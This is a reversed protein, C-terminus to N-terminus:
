VTRLRLKRAKLNVTNGAADRVSTLLVANASRKGKLASRGAKTPKLVVKVVGAIPSSTRGTGLLVAKPKRKAKAAGAPLKAGNDLYLAQMVTGPEDIGVFSTLGFRLFSRVSTSAAGLEFSTSKPPTRDVVAPPPPPCPGVVRSVTTEVTTHVGGILTEATQAVRILDGPGLPEDFVGAFTGDGLVRVRVINNRRPSYRDLSTSEFAGYARVAVPADSARTGSFANQGLCTRESLAPTGDYTTQALVAGNDQRVIRFVDGVQLSVGGPVRPVVVGGRVQETRMAVCNPYCPGTYIDGGYSATSTSSPSGPPTFAGAPFSAISFWVETTAASAVPAAAGLAAVAILSVFGSRRLVSSRCM